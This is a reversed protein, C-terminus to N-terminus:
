RRTAFKRYQAARNKQPTIDPAVPAASSDRRNGLHHPARCGIGPSPNGNAPNLDSVMYASSDCTIIGGTNGSFTAGVSDVSSNVLALIGPGANASITGGRLYAESNGDVVVGASRPDAGNGNNSIVNPGYM